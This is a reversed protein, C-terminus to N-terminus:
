SSVKYPQIIFEWFLQKHKNKTPVTVEHINLFFHWWSIWDRMYKEVPDRLGRSGIFLIKFEGLIM